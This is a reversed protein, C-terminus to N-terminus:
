YVNLDIAVVLLWYLCLLWLLPSLLFLVTALWVVVWRLLLMYCNNLNYLQFVDLMQYKQSTMLVM